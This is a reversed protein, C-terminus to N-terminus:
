GSRQSGVKSGGVSRNARAFKQDRNNAAMVKNLLKDLSRSVAEPGYTQLAAQAATREYDHGQIVQKLTAAITESKNDPMYTIGSDLEPELTGM